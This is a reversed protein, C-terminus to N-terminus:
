AEHSVGEIDSLIIIPISIIWGNRYYDGRGARGLDAPSFSYYIQLKTASKPLTASGKNREHPGAPIPLPTANWGLAHSYFIM